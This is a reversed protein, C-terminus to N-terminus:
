ASFITIPQTSDDVITWPSEFQVRADSKKAFRRVREDLLDLSDPSSGRTFAVHCSLAANILFHFAEVVRTSDSKASISIDLHNASHCGFFIILDRIEINNSIWDRWIQEVRFSGGERAYIILHWIYGESGAIEPTSPTSDVWPRASYKIEIETKYRRSAHDVLFHGQHNGNIWADVVPDGTLDVPSFQRNYASLAKFSGHELDRLVQRVKALDDEHPRRCHAIHKRIKKLEFARGNWVRHDMTVPELINRYEEAGVLDLLPGVDLYAMRLGMDPSAMYSLGQDNNEYKEAQRPLHDTWADGYKARLEVYVLSRLWTELQWWRAHLVTSIPPVDSRWLKELEQGLPTEDVYPRESVM